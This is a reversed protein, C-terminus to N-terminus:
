KRRSNRRTSSTRLYTALAAACAFGLLSGGPATSGQLAALVAVAVVVWALGRLVQHASPVAAAVAAVRGSLLLYLAGGALAAAGPHGLGALAVLGAVALAVVGCGRQSLRVPRHAATRRTNSRSTNRPTATNGRTNRRNTM